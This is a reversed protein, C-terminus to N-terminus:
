RTAFVEDFGEQWSPHSPTWGFTRKFKANSNGRMETAFHVAHAGAALRALFAPVRRPPKAGAAAAMAPLWEHMAAPEDDCVNYIGPTGGTLAAVTAAAADDIHVFSSVGTGGGAVPFRRRAIEAVIGGDPSYSTGPGYFFGYRLVVGEVDPTGLVSREMADTARVMPGFQHQAETFSRASEDHIRPGQPATMFSISQCLVRRVGAARAAAMLHPTAERRLRETQAFDREYRRIDVNAPIATLQHILVEPAAAAVADHVSGADYVDCVHPEVGAARLAAAREASRALGAVEHGDAQLLRCLPRGIAGTAGAILIKM